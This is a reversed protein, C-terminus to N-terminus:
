LYIQVQAVGEADGARRAGVNLQEDEISLVVLWIPRYRGDKLRVDVFDWAGAGSRMTAATLAELEPSRDGLLIWRDRERRKSLLRLGPSGDDGVYESNALITGSVAAFISEGLEIFIASANHRELHRQLVAQKPAYGGPRRLSTPGLRELAQDIATSDSARGDGGGQLPGFTRAIGLKGTIREVRRFWSPRQLDEAVLITLALDRDVKHKAAAEVVSNIHTQPVSSLHQEGDVYVETRSTLKSVAFFATATFGATLLSEAYKDSDPLVGAWFKLTLLALSATLLAGAAVVLNAALGQLTLTGRLAAKAVAAGATSVVHLLALLVIAQAGATALDGVLTSAVYVPGFRFVVYRWPSRSVARDLVDGVSYYSSPWKTEALRFFTFLLSAALLAPALADFWEALM